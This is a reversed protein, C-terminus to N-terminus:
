PDVEFVVGDGESGVGSGGRQATGYLNGGYLILSGVSDDGITGNFNWLTTEKHGNTGVPALKFVTGYAYKGSAVTTGYINGAADLAVGAWPGGGDKLNDKFPYLIRETWKAKKGQLKPSVEYVTGAKHAGGDYTTGYINGASDLVPVGFAEVGDKGSGFTHLVAPNWVSGNPSLEFVTFFTNGFLNGYADMAVGAMISDGLAIDYIVQEAWSGNSPSLEFVTGRGNEGGLNTVGYLNGGTDMVLGSYPSGGDTGGTFSYLPTETWDSGAPTLEYVVGGYYEGGGSATGYLNGSSDFIVYSLYPTFGGPGPGFSYIIKESWDEGNPSLEFVAGSDYTGGGSTVGYFNGQGDPTLQGQPFAGTSLCNGSGTACFNYLVSYPQAHAPCAVVLLGSLVILTLAGRIAAPALEIPSFRPGFISTISRSTTTHNRGESYM